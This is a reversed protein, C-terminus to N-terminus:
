RVKSRLYDRLTKSMKRMIGNKESEALEFFNRGKERNWRAKDNSFKDAFFFTLVTGVRSGRMKSLMDGTLTLNSKKPTTETSLNPYTKRFKVYRPSLKKLAKLKKESVGKGTATRRRITEPIEQLLYDFIEPKITAFHKRLKELTKAASM